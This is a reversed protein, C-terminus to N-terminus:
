KSSITSCTWPSGGAPSCAGREQGDAVSAAARTARGGRRWATGFQTRGKCGQRYAALVPRRSVGTRGSDRTCRERSALSRVTSRITVLRTVAMTRQAWGLVSSSHGLPQLRRDQFGNLHLGGPTRIGGGGGATIRQHRAVALRDDRHIVMVGRPSADASVTSVAPLASLISDPLGIRDHRAGSSLHGLPQLRRNALGNLPTLGRRPNSDGERRWCAAAIVPEKHVGAFAIRADPRGVGGPEYSLQISCRDVSGFTAPELGASGAGFARCGM